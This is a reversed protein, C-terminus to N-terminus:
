KQQKQAQLQARIWKFREVCQKKTKDPVMEAVKDWKDKAPLTRVARLANELASQQEKTWIDARSEEKDSKASSKSKKSRGKKTLDKVKAIIDDVSRDKGVSRQIKEWRNMSGGPYRAVAGVLLKIEEETWPKGAKKKAEEEEKKRRAKEAKKKEKKAQKAIELVRDFRELQAEKSGENVISKIDEISANFCITEIHKPKIHSQMFYESNCLTRLKLPIQTKEQRMQAMERKKKNEIALQAQRVRDEEEKILREKEERERQKKLKREKKVKLDRLFEQKEKYLMRTVRPDRVYADEVMQQIMLSEQKKFPAQLVANEKMMWKKEKNNEANAPDFVNDKIDEEHLFLRWSKFNRWSEYLRKVYQDSSTANGLGQAGKKTSYRSWGKFCPGFLAYFADEKVHIRHKIDSSSNFLQTNEEYDSDNELDSPMTDCKLDSSHNAIHALQIQDPIEDDFEIQSDYKQKEYVDSLTDFAKQILKYRAEAKNRHQPPAKDPHMLLSVKRYARKINDQSISMEYAKIGLLAYYDDLPCDWDVTVTIQKKKKKKKKKEKKKHHKIPEHSANYVIQSLYHIFFTRGVSEVHINVVPQM